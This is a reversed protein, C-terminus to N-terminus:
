KAIYGLRLEEQYFIYIGYAVIVTAVYFEPSVSIGLFIFDYLATFLPTLFGVFSLLTASYQRLLLGYLNYFIFNSIIIIAFFLLWFNINEYWHYVPKVEFWHAVVLAELGGMLMAFGNIQLSTYGKKLLKRVLTWGLSCSIVSALMCFYGVNLTQYCLINEHPITYLVGMLGILFGTWKKLTMYENFILYSFFATFFPTLNYMLAACAPSMTELGIFETTYPILIHIFSIVVFLLIDSKSMSKKYGVMWNILLIISGAISMRLGILFIPPLYNLLLKGITFTSALIGYLAIIQIM